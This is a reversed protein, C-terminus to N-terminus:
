RSLKEILSRIPHVVFIHLLFRVLRGWPWPPSVTQIRGARIAAFLTDISLVGDIGILSYHDGFFDLRHTDSTALLPKGHREAFRRVGHNLNWGAAHFHCYEIADFSALHQELRHKGISGGFVHFPHPAFTLLSNGRKKKLAALDSFSRLAAAEPETVNLLVVDAGEIRLEAAPLLLIGLELARSFLEPQTLVHDHLTIALAHFGLEHARHLLELASHDVIDEPDEASHLHLDAKIWRGAFIREQLPNALPEVADRFETATPM